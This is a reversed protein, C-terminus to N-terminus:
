LTGCSCGTVYTQYGIGKRAALGRATKIDQVPLRITVPRLQLREMMQQLNLTTGERIREAAASELKRRNRKHWRADEDESSLRPIILEKRRKM